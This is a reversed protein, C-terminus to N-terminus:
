YYRYAAGNGYLICLSLYKMNFAQLIKKGYNLLGSGDSNSSSDVLCLDHVVNAHTILMPTRFKGSNILLEYISHVRDKFKNATVEGYEIESLHPDMIIDINYGMKQYAYKIASATQTCRLYPSTYIIDPVFASYRYLWMALQQSEIIGKRTIPPDSLSANEQSVICKILWFLPYKLDSREAHRIICCRDFKYM